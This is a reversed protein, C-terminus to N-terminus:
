SGMSPTLLVFVRPFSEIFSHLRHFSSMNQHFVYHPQEHSDSSLDSTPHNARGNSFADHIVDEGGDQTKSTESHQASYTQDNSGDIGLYQPSQPSPRNIAHRHHSSCYFFVNILHSITVGHLFGQRLSPPQISTSLLKRNAFNNGRLVHRM